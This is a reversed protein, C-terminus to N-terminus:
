ACLASFPTYALLTYLRQKGSNSGSKVSFNLKTIPKIDIYGPGHNGSSYVFPEEGAGIDRIEVAGAKLILTCAGEESIREKTRALDVFENRWDLRETIM